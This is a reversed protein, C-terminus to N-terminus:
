AHNGGDGRAQAAAQATGLANTPSFSPMSTGQAPGTPEPAPLFGARQLLLTALRGPKRRGHVFDMMASYSIGARKAAARVSIAHSDIAQKISISPTIM